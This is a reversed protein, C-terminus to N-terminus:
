GTESRHDLFLLRKHIEDLPYRRKMSGTKSLRNKVRYHLGIGWM